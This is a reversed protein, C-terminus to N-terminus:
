VNKKIRRNVEEINMNKNVAQESEMAISAAAMGMRATQEIDIGNVFGLMITASFSDGAGTASCIKLNGAPPIIGERDQDKYYVGDKNLTIFVRKVGQDLFWQGAKKLDDESQISMGCLIEAEMLNPKISHFQGIVKQARQAKAASVPDYFMPVGELLETAYILLDEELNGDLAVIKSKKLKEKQGTLVEPTIEKIIEMDCFALEMDRNEDLISLYMASNRGPVEIIGSVDVGLEALESKAGKGMHDDGIVSIMAVDAGLRAANEAINLSFTTKGMSPRAAILVMDGKQFGSTKADLDKIGSGVGTIAGRNNFLREIELFGRELVDSLAEYEKSDKKEAIDFVKKQALDIVKEVDGGSNYSEEIISTSAKILKRLTSKEEVIKIYSSLNATTPVSSSLESIYTVGGAKDLMDTTKLYELITVLDVAMDKAYMERIAKYIVKHGDRYFDDENLKEFVQAIASKDIIMAGIVSQEAEISQPLSRMMPSEM